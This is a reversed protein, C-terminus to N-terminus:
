ALLLYCLLFFSQFFSLLESLRFQGKVSKTLLTDGADLRDLGADPLLCIRAM